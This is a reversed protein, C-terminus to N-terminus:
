KKELKWEAITKGEGPTFDTPRPNGPKASSLLFITGDCQYIGHQTKGKNSGQTHVFDIERPSKTADVTFTGQMFVQPGFKVTTTNGRTIRKGYKVMSKELPHGDMSGGLMSWEGELETAPGSSEVPAEVPEALRVPRGRHLTEFAHGSGAKTAFKKPRAGGRTTMCLKWDDGELEFIGLSTNGKEPGETFHLDFTKPNAFTDLQMKGEYVAGMGLSQFLDGKVVIRAESLMGGPMQQGDVELTTVYWTGDLAKM